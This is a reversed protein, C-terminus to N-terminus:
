QPLCLTGFDMQKHGVLATTVAPWQGSCYFGWLERGQMLAPILFIFGQSVGLPQPLLARARHSNSNESLVIIVNIVPNTSNGFAATYFYAMNKYVLIILSKIESKPKVWSPSATLLRVQGAQQPHGTEHLHQVFHEQGCYWPEPPALSPWLSGPQARGGWDLCQCQALWAPSDPADLSGWCQLEETRHKLFAFPHFCCM